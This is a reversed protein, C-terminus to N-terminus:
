ILKFHSFLFKINVKMLAMELTRQKKMYTWSKIMNYEEAQLIEKLM